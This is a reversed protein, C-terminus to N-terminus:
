RVSRDKEAGDSPNRFFPAVGVALFSWLFLVFGGLLGRWLFFGYATTRNFETVVAAPVTREFIGFFWHGSLVGLAVSGVLLLLIGVM